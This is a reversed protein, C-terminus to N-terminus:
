HNSYQIQLLQNQFMLSQSNQICKIADNIDFYEIIAYPNAGYQNNAFIELHKVEGFGHFMANLRRHCGVFDHGIDFKTVYLKNNVDNYSINNQINDNENENEILNIEFNNWQNLKSFNIIKNIMKNIMNFSSRIYIISYYYGKYNTMFQIDEIENLNIGGINVCLNILKNKDNGFTLGIYIEKLYFMQRDKGLTFINKSLCNVM